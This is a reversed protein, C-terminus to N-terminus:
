RINEESILSQHDVHEWTTLAVSIINSILYTFVVLVMTRTASRANRQLVSVAEHLM